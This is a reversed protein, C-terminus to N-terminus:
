RLWPPLWGCCCAVSVLSMAGGSARRGEGEEEEGEEGREGGDAHWQGRPQRRRRRGRERCAARSHQRAATRALADTALTASPLVLRRSPESSGSSKRGAGTHGAAPSATQRTSTLSPSLCASQCAPQSVPLSVSLCVSHQAAARRFEDWGQLCCHLPSARAEQRTLARLASCEGRHPLFPTPHLFFCWKVFYVTCHESGDEKEVQIDQKWGKEGWGGMGEGKIEGAATQGCPRCRQRQQMQWWEERGRM